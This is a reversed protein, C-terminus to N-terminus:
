AYLNVSKRFDGLYSEKVDNKVEIDIYNISTPTMEFAEEKSDATNLYRPPPHAPASFSKKIADNTTKTKHFIFFVIIAVAIFFVLLFFGGLVCGIITGNQNSSSQNNKSCTTTM